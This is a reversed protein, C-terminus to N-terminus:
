YFRLQRPDRGAWATKFEIALFLGGAVFVTM